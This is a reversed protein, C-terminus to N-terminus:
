RRNTSNSSLTSRAFQARCSPSLQAKKASLCAVVRDASPLTHSCMSLVDGVCANYQEATPKPDDAYSAVSFAGCLGAAVTVGFLFRAMNPM